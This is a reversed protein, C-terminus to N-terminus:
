AAHAALGPQMETPPRLITRGALLARYMQEYGNTMREATLESARLFAQQRLMALEGPNRNLQHLVASLSRAGSFYLAADGWVERLSPIDNAVVACGCLAAELPALGFPEYISTAIYISSRTLLSVLAPDSLSGLLISHGLQKPAVAKGHHREGAVYIPIPSNVDRLMGVNKAVDWLRGVTVAQVTRMQGQPASLNRGNSVVYCGPLGDYHRALANAMWQTPTTVAECAHLGHTVLSRYQRLWRSNELGRPRCADAWSLVDSHATILKPIDLSMAGFCFQNSHLLDPRFHRAVHSLVGAGQTFVFENKEMWELPANSATFQFDDGHRLHLGACWAQQEHSPQRGFSVLAVAHGRNLLETTLEKTFTWVGGITDTTLLIRM